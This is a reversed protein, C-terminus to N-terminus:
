REEIARCVAEGVRSTSASGGLDRPLARREALVREVAAEIKRGAAVAAPDGHREGLWDLMMAGSLIMALPNALDKGALSPATGHSPQFLAHRDGIEGSPALGLGGM